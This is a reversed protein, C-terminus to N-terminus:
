FLAFLFGGIAIQVWIAGAAFAAAVAYMRLRSPKRMGRENGASQQIQLLGLSARKQGFDGARVQGAPIEKTNFHPTAAYPLM